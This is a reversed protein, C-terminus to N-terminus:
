NSDFIDSDKKVSIKLQKIEEITFPLHDNKIKRIWKDGCNKYRPSMLQYIINDLRKCLNKTRIRQIHPITPFEIRIIGGGCIDPYSKITNNVFQHRWESLSIHLDQLVEETTLEFNVSM